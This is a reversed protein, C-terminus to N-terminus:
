VFKFLLCCVVYYAIWMDALEEFRELKSVEGTRGLGLPSVDADSDDM